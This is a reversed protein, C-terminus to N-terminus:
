RGRKYFRHGLYGGVIAIMPWVVLFVGVSVSIDDDSRAMHDSYWHTALSGLLFGLAAFAVAGVAIYITHRM